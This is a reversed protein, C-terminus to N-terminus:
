ERIKEGVLLIIRKGERWGTPNNQKRRKLSYLIIKEERWGSIRKTKEQVM